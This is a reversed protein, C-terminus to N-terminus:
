ASERWRQRCRWQTLRNGSIFAILLRPPVEPGIRDAEEGVDVDGFHLSRLALEIEEDGDVAGGLECDSLEDVLGIRRGPAGEQLGKDGGRGVLASITIASLPMWNAPRGFFRDPGVALNRPWGKSRAQRSCPTSWRSVLGM